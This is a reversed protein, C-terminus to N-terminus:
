KCLRWNKDSIGYSAYLPVSMKTETSEIIKQIKPIWEDVMEEPCTLVWSDHVIAIIKIEKPLKEQLNLTIRKMIDAAWGQVVTNFAAYHFRTPLNRRRGFKNTVHKHRFLEQSTAEMTNKLKPLRAHYTKYIEKGREECYKDFNIGEPVNEPDFCSKLMNITKAKGAGFSVAFNMNKAPKRDIGCRKAMLDHYDAEPNNTYESILNEDQILDAICRYEIQKLDFDILVHGEDPIIYERAASPVQQTNPEASSMRGTRVTQNYDTHLRINNDSHKKCLRIYPELFAHLIKFWKRYRSILTIVQYFEKPQGEMRSYEQLAFKSFSANNTKKTYEVVPVGYKFCIAEECDKNVNPRFPEGHLKGLRTGIDSLLNPVRTHMDTFVRKFDIRAGNREIKFLEKTLLVEANWVSNCDAPCEEICYHFLKRTIQADNCAYPAMVEPPIVAYDHVKWATRSENHTYQKLEESYIRTDEYLWDRALIEMSYQLKDSDIIKALTRTDYWIKSYLLEPDINGSNIAVHMDYKINHGVIGKTQTLLYTLYALCPAHELNHGERHRMPLYYAKEHDDWTFNYGLIECNKHPNVSKKKDKGSTTEFDLYLYRINTPKPLDATSSVLVGNIDNLSPLIATVNM